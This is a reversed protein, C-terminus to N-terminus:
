LAFPMHTHAKCKEVADGRVIKPKHCFRKFTIAIETKKQESRNEIRNPEIKM